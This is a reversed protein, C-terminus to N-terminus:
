YFYELLEWFSLESNAIWFEALDSQRLHILTDDPLNRAKLENLFMDWNAEFFPVQKLKEYRILEAQQIEQATGVLRPLQLLISLNRVENENMIFYNFAFYDASM